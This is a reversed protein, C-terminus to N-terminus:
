KADEPECTVRIKWAKQHGWVPSHLDVQIGPDEVSFLWGNNPVAGTYWLEVDETVNIAIEGQRTLRVIDTPRTARDSSNGSAGPRTWEIKGGVAKRYRYSVGAGWDALMRWLYFRPENGWSYIVPVLLEAHVIRHGKPIRGLSFQILFSRGSALSVRANDFKGAHPERMAWSQLPASKAIGAMRDSDTADILITKGQAPMCFALAVILFWGTISKKM